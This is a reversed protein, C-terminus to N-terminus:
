DSEENIKFEIKLGEKIITCVPQLTNEFHSCKFSSLRNKIEICEEETGKVIYAENDNSVEINPINKITNLSYMAFHEEFNELIQKNMINKNKCTLHTFDIISM